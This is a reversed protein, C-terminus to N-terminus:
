GRGVGCWAGRGTRGQDRSVVRAVDDGSHRGELVVLARHLRGWSCTREVASPRGEGVGRIEGKRSPASRPVVQTPASGVFEGVNRALAVSRFISVCLVDGDEDQGQARHREAGGRAMSVAQAPHETAGGFARRLLFLMPDSCSGSRWNVTLWLCVRIADKGSTVRDGPVLCGEFMGDVEWPGRISGPSQSLRGAFRLSFQCGRVLVAV